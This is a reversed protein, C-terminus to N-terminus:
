RLHFLLPLLLNIFFSHSPQISLRPRPELSHVECGVPVLCQLTYVSSRRPFDLLSVCPLQALCAGIIYIEWQPALLVVSPSTPTVRPMKPSLASLFSHSGQIQLSLNSELVSALAGQNSGKTSCILSHPHQLSPEAVHMRSANKGCSCQEAQESM